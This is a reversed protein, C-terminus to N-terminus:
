ADGIPRDEAFAVVPPAPVHISAEERPRTLCALLADVKEATDMEVIVGPTVIRYM